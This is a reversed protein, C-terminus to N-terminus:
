GTHERVAVRPPAANRRKVSSLEARWQGGVLQRGVNRPADLCGLPTCVEWLSRCRGGGHGGLRCSRLRSCSPSSGFWGGGRSSSMGVAGGGAHKSRSGPTCRWRGSRICLQCSSITLWHCDHLRHQHRAPLADLGFRHSGLWATVRCGREKARSCCRGRRCCGRLCRLRRRRCAPLLLRRRLLRLADSGLRNPRRRSHHCVGLLHAPASAATSVASAPCPAAKSDSILTCHRCLKAGQMGNGEGRLTRCEVRGMLLIARLRAAGRLCWRWGGGLRRPADDRLGDTAGRGWRGGGSRGAAAGGSGGRGARGLLRPADCGLRYPGHRRGSRGGLAAHRGLRRCAAFPADCGRRHVDCFSRRLLKAARNGLLLHTPAHNAHQAALQSVSARATGPGPVCEAGLALSSVATKRGESWHQVERKCAAWGAGDSSLRSPAGAEPRRMVGIGTPAACARGCPSSRVAVATALPPMAAIAAAAPLCAACSRRWHPRRPVAAVTLLHCTVRQFAPAAENVAHLPVIAITVNILGAHAHGTSLRRCPRHASRTNQAAGPQGQANRKYRGGM